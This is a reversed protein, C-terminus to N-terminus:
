WTGECGPSRMAGVTIVAIPTGSHESLAPPTCLAKPIWGPNRGRERERERELAPKYLFSGLYENKSVTGAGEGGVVARSQRNKEVANLM